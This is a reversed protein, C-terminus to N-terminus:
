PYVFHDLDITEGGAALQGHLAGWRAPEFHVVIELNGADAVRFVFTYRGDAAAESEPEPVIRLIRVSNVFEASLAMEFQAPAARSRTTKDDIIQMQLQDPAAYRLYRNYTVRVRGSETERTTESLPGKGALGVLAALVIATFVLWGVRQCAWECRQFRSTKGADANLPNAAM